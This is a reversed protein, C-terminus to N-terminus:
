VSIKAIQSRRQSFANFSFWAGPLATFLTGFYIFLSLTFASETSVGMLGFFYVFATERAGLGGVSIPLLQIFVIVPVFILLSILPPELNLAWAGFLIEAVRLFQIGFALILAWAMTAPSDRFADLCAYVKELKKRLPRLLETDLLRDVFIRTRRDLIGLLAITLIFLCVWAWLQVLPESESSDIGLGILVVLALTFLGFFRDVLVSSFSTELDSSSRALGAVRLVEIGGGPLFMGFFNSAFTIRLVPLFRVRSDRCKLLVYWRYAGYVRAVTMIGLMMLLCDVRAFRVVEILQNLDIITLLMAMLFISIAIRALRRGRGGSSSLNKDFKSAQDKNRETM